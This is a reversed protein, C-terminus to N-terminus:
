LIHIGMGHLQLQTDMMMMVYFILMILFYEQHILM